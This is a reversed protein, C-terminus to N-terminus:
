VGQRGGRSYRSAFLIVLTGMCDTMALWGDLLRAVKVGWSWGIVGTNLSKNCRLSNMENMKM